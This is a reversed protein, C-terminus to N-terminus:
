DRTVRRLRPARRASPAACVPSESTGRIPHNPHSPCSGSLAAVRIPRSPHSPHPRAEADSGPPADRRIPITDSVIVHRLSSKGIKEVATGIYIYIYIYIYTHIYRHM